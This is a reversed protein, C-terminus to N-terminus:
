DGGFIFWMSKVLSMQMCYFDHRTKDGAEVTEM